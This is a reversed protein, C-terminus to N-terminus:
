KVNKVVEVGAGNQTGKIGGHKNKVHRQRGLKKLFKKGCVPCAYCGDEEQEGSEHILEIHRKLNRNTMFGRCCQPCQHPRISTADNHILTHTTLYKRTKFSKHCIECTHPREDTHETEHAELKLKSCFDQDCNRCRFPTEGTHSREHIYLQAHTSFWSKCFECQFPKKSGTHKRKHFQLAIRSSVNIGCVDCKHIEPDNLLKQITEPDGKSCFHYRKHRRLNAAKIFKRQCIDCELNETTKPATQKKAVSTKLNADRKKKKRPCVGGLTERRRLHQVFSRKHNFGSGCFECRFLIETCHVFLHKDLTNKELFKKPCYQCLFTKEKYQPLHFRKHRRLARATNLLKGCADCQFTEDEHIKMHQIFSSKNKLVAGCVYCIEPKRPDHIMEHMVRCHVSKLRKGCVHCETSTNHKYGIHRDLKQQSYFVKNCTKCKHGHKTKLHDTLKHKGEFKEGCVPCVISFDPHEVKRHESALKSSRFRKACVICSFPKKFKVHSNKIHEALTSCSNFINLCELCKYSVIIEEQFPLKNLLVSTDSSNDFRKCKEHTEKLVDSQYLLTKCGSFESKPLNVGEEENMHNINVALNRHGLEKTDKIPNESTSLSGNTSPLVVFNSSFLEANHQLCSVERTSECNKFSSTYKKLPIVMANKPLAKTFDSETLDNLGEECETNRDDENEIYLSYKAILRLYDYAKKFKEILKHCTKLDCTCLRCIKHPLGDCVNLKTPMLDECMKKLEAAEISNTFIDIYNESVTEMCFRCMDGINYLETNSNLNFPIATVSAGDTEKNGILQSSHYSLHRRNASVMLEYPNLVCEFIRAPDTDPPLDIGKSPDSHSLINDSTTFITPLPHCSFDLWRRTDDTFCNDEFHDACLKIHSTSRSVKVADLDTRECNRLWTNCLTFDNPFGFFEKEPHTLRSNNCYKAACNHVYARVM